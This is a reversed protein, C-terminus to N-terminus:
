LDEDFDESNGNGLFNQTSAISEAENMGNIFNTVYARIGMENISNSFEARLDPEGNNGFFIIFNGNTVESLTNLVSEPCKFPQGVPDIFNKKPM